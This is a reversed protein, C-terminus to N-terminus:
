LPNCRPLRFYVKEPTVVQLRKTRLLPSRRLLSPSTSNGSMVPALLLSPNNPTHSTVTKEPAMHGTLCSIPIRYINKSQLNCKATFYFCVTFFTQITLNNPPSFYMSITFAASENEDVSDMCVNELKEDFLFSNSVLHAFDIYNNIYM